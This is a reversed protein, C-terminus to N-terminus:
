IGRRQSQHRVQGPPHTPCVISFFSSSVFFHTFIVSLILVKKYKQRVVDATSDSPVNLIDYFNEKDMIRQVLEEDTGAWEEFREKRYYFLLLPFTEL